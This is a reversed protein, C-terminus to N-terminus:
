PCKMVGECRAKLLTLFDAVHAEGWMPGERWILEGTYPDGELEWHGPSAQVMYGPCTYSVESIVPETGRLLVDISCSQCRLKKAIDFALHIVRPDIKEPSCDFNGSGSARFDNARNFRRCGFARRGIVAIRTDFQNGPLFEQFLIYNKHLDWAFEGPKKVPLVGTLLLKAAVKIRRGGFSLRDKLYPQTVRFVGGGFLKDIWLEADEFSRILVVNESSAGARLKLVLPYQTDRAWEKALTADYWVWTKPVPIGAAQFLYSQAIKDDYHWCTDQDPYVALGMEREIVPLLRRAIQQLNPFPALRWMFGDCGRLQDLIDARFVNVIRVEHGAEQLLRTWIPSAADGPGYDDPQIAITFKMM